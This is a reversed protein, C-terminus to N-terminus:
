IFDFFLFISLLVKYLPNDYIIAVVQNNNVEQVADSPFPKSYYHNLQYKQARGTFYGGLQAKPYELYLKTSADIFSPNVERLSTMVKSEDRVFLLDDGLINRRMESPTLKDAFKAIATLLREEDIFPLIVEGMWAFRKGKVDVVFDKPYFDIIESDDELM